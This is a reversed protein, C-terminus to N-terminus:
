RSNDQFTLTPLKNTCIAQVVVQAEAEPTLAQGAAAVAQVCDVM